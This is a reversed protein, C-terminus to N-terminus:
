GLDVWATGNYGRFKNTTTNFYMMGAVGTPDSGKSDLQITDGFPVVTASGFTTIEGSSSVQTGSGDGFYTTGTVNFDADFEVENGVVTITNGSITLDEINTTGNLNTTGNVTVNSQIPQEFYVDTKFETKSTGADDRFRVHDVSVGANNDKLTIYADPDGSVAGVYRLQISSDDTSSGSGVSRNVVELTNAISTKEASADFVTTSNENNGSTKDFVVLEYHTNYVDYECDTGDTGAVVIDRLKTYISSTRRAGGGPTAIFTTHTSMLDNGISDGSFDYDRELIISEMFGFGNNPRRRAISFASGNDKSSRLPASGWIDEGGLATWGSPDFSNPNVEVDNADVDGTLNGTVDGTLNGTVTLPTAGLTAITTPTVHVAQSFSGVYMNDSDAHIYGDPTLTLNGSNTVTLTFSSDATIATLDTITGSIAIDGNLDIDGNVQVDDNFVSQAGGVIIGGEFTNDLQSVDQWIVTDTASDYSLVQNDLAGTTNIKDGTVGKDKLFTTDISGATVNTNPTIMRIMTTQRTIQSSQRVM